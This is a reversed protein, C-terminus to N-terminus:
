GRHGQGRGQRPLSVLRWANPTRDAFVEKVYGTKGSQSRRSLMVVERDVYTVRGVLGREPDNELVRQRRPRVARGGVTWRTTTLRGARRGFLNIESVEVVAGEPVEGWIGYGAETLAKVAM